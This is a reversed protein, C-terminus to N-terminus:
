SSSVQKWHKCVKSYLINAAFYAIGDHLQNSNEDSQSPSLFDESLLTVLTQWAEDRTEFEILFLNAEHNGTGQNFLTLIANRVFSVDSFPNEM